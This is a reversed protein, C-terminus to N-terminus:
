LIRLLFFFRVVCAVFVTLLVSLDLFWDLMLGSRIALVSRCIFQNSMTEYVNLVSICVAPLSLCFTRFFFFEYLFVTCLKSFFGRTGRARPWHGFDLLNALAGLLQSSSFKEYLIRFYLVIYVDHLM